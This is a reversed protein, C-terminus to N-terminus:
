PEKLGRVGAREGIYSAEITWSVGEVGFGGVGRKVGSHSRAIVLDRVAIQVDATTLM